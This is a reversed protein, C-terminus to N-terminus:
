DLMGMMVLQAEQRLTLVQRLQQQATALEQKAKERASRLATLKAKIEDPTAATNALTTQLAEAARDVATPEQGFPGRPGRRAGEQGGQPGGPRGGQGGRRGMFMRAMGGAGSTQRRLGMVKTLRPGIVKWEDDTAGLQDKMRQEMMQRMREPDFGGPGGRQGGRQRGQPQALCLGAAMLAILCGVIGVSIVKKRM